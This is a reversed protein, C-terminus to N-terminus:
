HASSSASSSTHAGPGANGKDSSPLLVYGLTAAILAAAAIVGVAKKRKSRDARIPEEGADGGREKAARQASDLLALTEQKAREFEEQPVTARVLASVLAARPLRYGYLYMDLRTAPTKLEPCLEELSKGSNDVLSRLVTVLLAGESTASRITGWRRGPH